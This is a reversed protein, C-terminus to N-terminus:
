ECAIARTIQLVEVEVSARVVCAFLSRRKHSKVRSERSKEGIKAYIDFLTYTYTASTSM